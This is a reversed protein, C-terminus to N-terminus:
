LRGETRLEAPVWSPNRREKFATFGEIPESGVVGAAMGIRDYLGYYQDFSRKVASWAKPAAGCAAALTETAVALLDDHPAMRTVLGWDVAEAATVTRGTVLMDRARAPGIQRPLIQAYNTDAIGRLLEPARFTARDSAVTVDSLMAIMLGGAQCLGNVACVVPKRAQRLAEFPTVDMGFLRGAGWDDEGTQGLDGGPIFVDGTGTIILGALDPDADVHNIAYRLAFYMAATLANRREPRDIVCHAIVGHREFRVFNTGLWDGRPPGETAAVGGTV